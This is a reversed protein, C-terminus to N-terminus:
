EFVKVKLDRAQVQLEKDKVMYSIHGDFILLYKQSYNTGREQQMKLIFNDM